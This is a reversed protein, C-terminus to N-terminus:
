FRVEVGTSYVNRDYEYLALNSFDSAHFYQFNVFVGDTLEHSLNVTAAYTADERKMGYITHNNLYNQWFGELSIIVSTRSALPLLLDANLRNGLYSWNNGQADELSFEYRLNFFGKEGAFM